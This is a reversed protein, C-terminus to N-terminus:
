KKAAPKKDEKCWDTEKTGGDYRVALKLKMLEESLSQGDSVVDADLRFYKDRGINKLTIGKKEHGRLWEVAFQKATRAKDKELQCKGKMEPTDIGRVRVPMRYGVIKPMDKINVRFTDGDYISTISEVIMDPFTIDALREGSQKPKDSAEAAELWGTDTDSKANVPLGSTCLLLLSFLSINITSNTM